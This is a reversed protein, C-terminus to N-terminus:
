WLPNPHTTPSHSISVSALMKVISIWIIIQERLAALVSLMIIQCRQELRSILFVDCISIIKRFIMIM